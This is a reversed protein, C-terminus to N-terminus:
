AGARRPRKRTTLHGNVFTTTRDAVWQEIDHVRWRALRGFYTPPVFIKKRSWDWVTTESVNLRNAVAKVDLMDSDDPPKPRQVTLQHMVLQQLTSQIDTVQTELRHLRSELLLIRELSGAVDKSNKVV